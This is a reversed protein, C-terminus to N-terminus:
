VEKVGAAVLAAKLKPLASNYRKSVEGQSIGITRGIEKQSVGDLTMKIIVNEQDTLGTQPDDIAKRLLEAKTTKDVSDIIRDETNHVSVQAINVDSGVAQAKNSNARRYAMRITNLCAAWIYTTVKTDMRTTDYKQLAYSATITCEQVMDKFNLGRANEWVCASILRKGGNALFDALTADPCFKQTKGFAESMIMTKM